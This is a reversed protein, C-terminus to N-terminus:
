YKFFEMGKKKKKKKGKYLQLLLDLCEELDLFVKDEAYTQEDNGNQGPVDKVTM